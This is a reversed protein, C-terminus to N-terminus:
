RGRDLEVTIEATPRGDVRQWDSPGVVVREARHGRRYVLLEHAEDTPLDEVRATPAFGILHYVKAGPPNTIVRVEGLEGTPTGVDRSLQTEGLARSKSEEGAQMALEYRPAEDGERSWHADAPVVARTPRRGDAVAVFEHAVGVPLHEATVPGRGVFRLVQAREPAVHVILHGFRERHQRELHEQESARAAQREKRAAEDDPAGRLALRDIVDPRLVAVAAIAGGLLLLM